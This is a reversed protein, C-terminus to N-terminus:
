SDFVLESPATATYTATASFADGTIVPTVRRSWVWPRGVSLQYVLTGDPTAMFDLPQSNQHHRPDHVSVSRVDGYIPPIAEALNPEWPVISCWFNHDATDAQLGPQNNLNDSTFSVYNLVGYRAQDALQYTVTAAWYSPQPPCARWALWSTTNLNGGADLPPLDNDRSLGQYYKDSSPLYVFDDPSYIQGTVHAAYFQVQQCVMLSEWWWREWLYQVARSLAVRADAKQRDELQDIDKQMLRWADEVLVSAAITQM